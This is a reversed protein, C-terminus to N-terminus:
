TCGTGYVAFRVGVRSLKCIAGCPKCWTTQVVSKACGSQLFQNGSTGSTKMDTANSSRDSM